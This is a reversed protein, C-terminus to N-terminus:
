LIIIQFSKSSGNQLMQNMRLEKIHNEKDKDQATSQVIPSTNIKDWM